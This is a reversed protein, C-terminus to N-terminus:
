YVRTDICQKTCKAIYTVWDELINQAEKEDNDERYTMFRASAIPEENLKVERLNSRQVNVIIYGQKYMKDILKILQEYRIDMRIEYTHKICCSIIKRYSLEKNTEVHISRINHQNGRINAEDVKYGNVAYLNCVYGIMKAAMITKVHQMAEIDNSNLRTISVWTTGAISMSHMVPAWMFKQLEKNRYIVEVAKGSRANYYLENNENAFDKIRDYPLLIAKTEIISEKPKVYIGSESIVVIYQGM